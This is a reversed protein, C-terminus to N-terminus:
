PLVLAALARADAPALGGPVSTGRGIYSLPLGSIMALHLVQGLRGAEDAHTIALASVGLPALGEVLEEGASASLTAPVALHIEALRMARLEGALARVVGPDHPGVSPTDVVVVADSPLAAIVKVAASSSEAEHVQVPTGELVSRVFAGGDRSRLAIYAVPAEGAKGYAAALRASCLTKGAGGAGVFAISRGPSVPVDAVPIRRALAVRVLAKLRRRGGFPVLHVVASGVVDAALTAALGVSSLRDELDKAHDEVVEYSPEVGEGEGSEPPQVVVFGGADAPPRAFRQRLEEHAVDDDGVAEAARLQRLFASSEPEAM